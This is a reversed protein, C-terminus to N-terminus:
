TLDLCTLLHKEGALCSLSTQLTEKSFMAPKYEILVHLFHKM